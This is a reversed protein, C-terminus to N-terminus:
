KLIGFARALWVIFPVIIAIVGLRLGWYKWIEDRYEKRYFNIGEETIKARVTVNGLTQKVGSYTNGIDRHRDCWIYKKDSALYQLTTRIQSSYQLNNSWYNNLIVPQGTKRKKYLLRLIKRQEKENVLSGTM